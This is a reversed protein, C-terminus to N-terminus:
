EGKLDAFEERMDKIARQYVSVPHAGPAPLFDALWSLVPDDILHMRLRDMMQIIRGKQPRTTPMGFGKSGVKLALHEMEEVLFELSISKRPRGRKGFNSSSIDPPLGLSKRVEDIAKVIIMRMSEIAFALTAQNQFRFNVKNVLNLHLRELQRQLAEADRSTENLLDIIDPPLPQETIIVDAWDELLGYLSSEVYHNDRLYERALIDTVEEPRPVKALVRFDAVVHEVVKKFALEFARQGELFKFTSSSEAQANLQKGKDKTLM